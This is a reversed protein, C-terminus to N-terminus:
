GNIIDNLKVVVEQICVLQNNRIRYGLDYLAKIMERPSMDRAKSTPAEHLVTKVVLPKEKKAHEIGQEAKMTKNYAYVVQHISGVSRDMMYAIDKAQRGEHYLDIIVKKEEETYPKFANKEKMATNTKTTNKM